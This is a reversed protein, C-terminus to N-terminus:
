VSRREIELFSLQRSDELMMKTSHFTILAGIGHRVHFTDLVEQTPVKTNYNNMPNRMSFEGKM